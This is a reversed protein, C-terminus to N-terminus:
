SGARTLAARMWPVDMAMRVRVVSIATQFAVAFFLFLAGRLVWPVWPRRIRALVIISLSAFAIGWAGIRAFHAGGLMSSLVILAFSM